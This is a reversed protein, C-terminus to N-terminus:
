NFINKGTLDQMADGVTIADPALQGLLTQVASSLRAVNAWPPPMPLFKGTAKALRWTPENLAVLL